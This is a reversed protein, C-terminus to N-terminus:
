LKVPETGQTMKMPSTGTAQHWTLNSVASFNNPPFTPSYVLLYYLKYFDYYGFGLVKCEPLYHSLTRLMKKSPKRIFPTQNCLVRYIRTEDM